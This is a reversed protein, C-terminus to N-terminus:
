KQLRLREKAREKKKKKFLDNSVFLGRKESLVEAM